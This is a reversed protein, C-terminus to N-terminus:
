EECALSEPPPTFSGVWPRIVVGPPFREITVDLDAQLGHADLVQKIRKETTDHDVFWRMADIRTAAAYWRCISAYDTESKPTHELEIAVRKGEALLLGDPRHGDKGGLRALRNAPRGGIARGLKRETRWEASPDQDLLYDALDVVALNHRLTVLSPQDNTLPRLGLRTVRHGHRTAWYVTAGKIWNPQHYIFGGDRLMGLRWAALEPEDLYRRAIQDGTLAGFSVIERLVFMDLENLDKLTISAAM